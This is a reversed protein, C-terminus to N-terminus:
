SVRRLLHLVDKQLHVRALLPQEDVVLPHMEAALEAAGAVGAAGVADDAIQAGGSALPLLVRGAEMASLRRRVGRLPRGQDGRRNRRCPSAAATCSPWSPKWWCPCRLPANPPSAWALSSRSPNGVQMGLCFGEAEYGMLSAADFLDVLKLDHLSAEPGFHRAMADPEFRYVTGPADGTGDVADVTLILDCREVYPLMDLSMCGVDVLTVNEPIDYGALIEDYAAPGVGDDLMLRNGVFFVAATRESAEM